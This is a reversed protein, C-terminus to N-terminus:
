DASFYDIDIRKIKVVKATSVGVDFSIMLQALKKGDILVVKPEITSVYERAERTFTSTTLFVGKRARKGHLAGVFKQIEPRGVSDKWKKAQLYILDLGLRDENIIGDIGEDAGANTLVGAEAGTGGYGMALMLDLVLKEFFQHSETQIQCLLDASLERNIQKEALDIAADPTMEDDGVSKTSAIQTPEEETDGAAKFERYGPFQNLFATDIREPQSALTDRGLPSIKFHGRKVMELLGAEKLYTKAWAVRNHFTGQNKSPLRETREEETLGLQSALDDKADRVTLIERESALNLLPLMVDQFTPITM